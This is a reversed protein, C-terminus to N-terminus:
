MVVSYYHGSPITSGMHCIVGRLEYTVNMIEFTVPVEVPTQIKNQYADWRALSM